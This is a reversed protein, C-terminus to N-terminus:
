GAVHARVLQALGRLVGPDDDVTRTRAFPLRVEGAVTAAEIDLDYLVELHDATFGCPCVVLGPVEPDGARARIVDVVDPGLWPDPTRGASQWAVSYRPLGARAAVAAATAALQGPYPDGAQLIRQPLSHASFVVESGAPVSELADMVAASLFDLYEELLHWDPITAVPLQHREGAAAARQAYEGVSMASFHPAMVLGVIQDVGSAALADVGDEIRPAAHKLGQGVTYGGPELADLASQLGACQRDTAARLPFVGGIADYRAALDALAEASPPRGRRIDTYYDTIDDRSRPTGYAMVLVGVTV